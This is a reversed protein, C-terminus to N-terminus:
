EDGDVLSTEPTRSGLVCDGPQVPDLIYEAPPSIFIPVASIAPHISVGM